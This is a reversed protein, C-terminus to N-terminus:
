RLSAPKNDAQMALADTFMGRTDTVSRMDWRTLDQNFVYANYFTREMDNV